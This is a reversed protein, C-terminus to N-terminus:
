LGGMSRFCHNPPSLGAAAAAGPGLIGTGKTRAGAMCSRLWRIEQWGAEALPRYIGSPYSSILVMGQLTPVAEVLRRHDDDTMEHLYKGNKRTSHPYPPDLYFCTEPTDYKPLIKEWPLNEVHVTRLREVVPPLDKEVSSLFRQVTSNDKISYGWSPKGARFVGSFAQNAVVMFMRSPKM